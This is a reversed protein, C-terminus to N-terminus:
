AAAQLTDDLEASLCGEIETRVHLAGLTLYSVARSCAVESASATLSDIHIDFKNDKM